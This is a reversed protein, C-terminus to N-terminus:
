GSKETLLYTWVPKLFESFKSAIVSTHAMKEWDSNGGGPNTKEATPVVTPYSTTLIHTHNYPPTLKAVDVPSGYADLGLSHLNEALQGQNCAVTDQAHNFAFFRDKPTASTETYYGAPANLAQNFDKPSGTCIVRSVRHKIGILAAHGGGQSQGAVAILEWKISGDPNLFQGWNERPRISQLRLLLKQLRNEISEPQEIVLEKGRKGYHATGGHIIAMRFNEFSSPNLDHACASAPIQDPYMLSVAHYGLDASLNCFAVASKGSGGTGTLWLLLEHRDAPLGPSNEVVIDRNLYVWEPDNFTRIAPDTASPIVPFSTVESRAVSSIIFFVPLWKNM